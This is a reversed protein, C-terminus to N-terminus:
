SSRDEMEWAHDLAHWAMRRAAYRATWRRGGLPGGDSPEALVAIMRDRMARLAQASAPEPVKLGIQRAYAHDAMAVHDLMKSRDRGGGRPGKRLEEPATKAIAGLAQWAAEVFAALERAQEASVADRDADFTMAPIGFATSADGALRQVAKYTPSEPLPSGTAEAVPAFRPGYAALAELAAEETRGSRSWGPFDLASAFAKKETTEIGVRITSSRARTV